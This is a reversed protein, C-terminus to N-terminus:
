TQFRKRLLLASLSFLMVFFVLTLSAGWANQLAQPNTAQQALALIHTPLTSLPENFSSPVDVGSFATAIFMIPATEGIIRAMGILLGTVLGNKARPMLVKRIVEWKNLGLAYASERYANPIEKLAQYCSQTITPLMMIALIISGVFWSIGTGLLNVFLILGFIGFIVSPVGNLSFLLTQSMRQTKEKQIYESKFIALGASVPLALTAAVLVMLVSGMIQYIIGGSAGFNKTSSFLFDLSIAGIGEWIIALFLLLLLSGSLGICFYVAAKFLHLSLNRSM